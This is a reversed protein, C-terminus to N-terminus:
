SKARCTEIQASGQRGYAAGEQRVWVYKVDDLQWFPEFGRAAVAFGHREYFRCARGNRAFTFLWLSGSSEAQALSLLQTGIGRGIHSVKVHLQAISEPTSAMFAVLEGQLWALRVRNEPVVKTRFYDAQDAIPNPDVIGVGFEFSARWMSVLEDTVSPVFETIRVSTHPHNV